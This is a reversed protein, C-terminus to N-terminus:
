KRERGKWCGMEVGEVRGRRIGERRIERREGVDFGQRGEENKKKNRERGRKRM